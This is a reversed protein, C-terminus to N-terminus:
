DAGSLRWPVGDLHGRTQLAAADLLARAKLLMEDFEDRPDSGAVIAGGTGISFAGNELVMTRIVINLDASGNLSVFGLAGSYVGRASGELADIIEMTHIKPAGTMSGGPFAARICDAADIGDRLRGTIVSVMQHVTAYSEIAMLAPVRVSGTVCVRGLDNRLLDVIMLNEARNKVSQALGIALRADLVPDASRPATGKIPRAEVKRNRDIRLFREPSSCLVALADLRLFAAFPAPNARRLRRYLLLPDIDLRGRIRNTLCVEYSDGADILALARAIAAEYRNRGAELSVELTRFDPEPLPLAVEQATQARRMTGDLWSGASAAQADGAHLAVFHVTRELHDIAVFRQVWLGAADPQGSRHQARGGCEAKLEYGFYGV